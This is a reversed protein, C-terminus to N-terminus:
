IKTELTSLLCPTLQSFGPDIQVAGGNADGICWVGEVVGGEKDLVQMKDNVPVFGRQTEM